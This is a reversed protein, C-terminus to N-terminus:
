LLLDAEAIIDNVSDQDQLDLPLLSVLKFEDILEKLALALNTYKKLFKSVPKKSVPKQEIAGEPETTQNELEQKIREKQQSM